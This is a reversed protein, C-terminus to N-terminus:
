QEDTPEPDRARAARGYDRQRETREVARTAAAVVEAPEADLAVCIEYLDEVDIAREAKLTKHLTSLPLGTAAAFARVSMRHRALLARLEAAVANSM